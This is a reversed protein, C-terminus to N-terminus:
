KMMSQTARVIAKRDIKALTYLEEWTGSMQYERVGLSKYVTPHINKERLVASLQTALGSTSNHDEVTLVRGTKKISSFLPTDFQKISSVIVIEASIGQERLTKWASLAEAVIGGMAVITVDTGKRLVDCRGYYYEYSADFLVDGKQTTLVPLAHRGMRMYVNGYHSAIYRVMRDCQNADAPEIQMTNLLGLMSGSDDIAQHTPGDEGVSLGCHTAVMKVNTNNIDNVRAQDKARSTMFAGFTSCFPVIGALSMGGSMSVMQQEAVGVDIHQDPLAREVGDTKVSGALDATLAVVHKNAIALDLLANGYATRCDVVEAVTYVRPKGTKVRVPSGQEPFVPKGPKWTVSQKRFYQLTQEQEASLALQTDLASTIQELSGAKGHWTSQHQIGAKEMFDVGKGMVTNGVICVPTGVVKHAKSLASWLAQYDHGDVDIVHWGAALFHARPDYPMVVDLSDSLQVRNYDLFVILNDLKYKKAVHMMEYVQGEEAEGDGITCYVKQPSNGRGKKLPPQPPNDQQAVYKEGWAFGSASSVGAGLPGTGYWVGPVERSVHGEFVSGAKRFGAIVSEKDVYGMEVLVAYVAPSVHGNSIVVPDGTKAIIGAYLVTLFDIMSLSGGPHGSNANTTMELISRRCSTAFTRFITSQEKTLKKGLAPLTNM